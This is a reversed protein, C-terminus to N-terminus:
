LPVYRILVRTGDAHGERFRDRWKGIEAPYKKEYVAIMRELLTDDKTLSARSEFSPGKRFDENRGVVKKWRGYDGVWIQARDLGKQLARSKWRDAGTIIVAAGDLWAYWVEAHCTSESGDSKLPSVYVYPSGELAKEIEPSVQVGRAARSLALPSVLVALSAGLFTRRDIM